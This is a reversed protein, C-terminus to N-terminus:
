ASRSPTTPPDCGLATEKANASGYSFAIEFDGARYSGIALYGFHTRLKGADDMATSGMAWATGLGKGFWGTAGVGIGSIRGWAGGGVGFVNVM